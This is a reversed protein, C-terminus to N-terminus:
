LLKFGRDQSASQLSSSSTGLMQQYLQQKEPDMSGLKEQLKQQMMEQMKKQFAAQQQQQAQQQNVLAQIPDITTTTPAM